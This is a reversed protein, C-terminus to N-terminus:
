KSGWNESQVCRSGKAKHCNNSITVIKGQGSPLWLILCLSYFTGLWHTLSPFAAAPFASRRRAFDLWTPCGDSTRPMTSTAPSSTTCVRRRRRELKSQSQSQFSNNTHYLAKRGRFLGLYTGLGLTPILLLINQGKRGECTTTSVDPTGLIRVDSRPAASGSTKLNVNMNKARVQWPIFFYLNSWFSSIFINSM